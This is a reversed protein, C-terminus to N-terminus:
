QIQERADFIWGPTEEDNRITAHQAPHMIRALCQRVPARLTDLIKLSSPLHIEVM